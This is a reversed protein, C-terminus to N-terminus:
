HKYTLKAVIGVRGEQLLLEHAAANVHRSAPPVLLREQVRFGQVDGIGSRKSSDQLRACFV